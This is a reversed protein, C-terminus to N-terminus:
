QAGSNLRGIGGSDKGPLILHTNLSRRIENETSYQLKKVHLTKV